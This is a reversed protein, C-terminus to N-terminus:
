AFEPCVRKIVDSIDSILKSCYEVFADDVYVLTSVESVDGEFFFDEDLLKIRFPLSEVRKVLADYSPGYGHKLTNIAKCLTDFQEKLVLEKENILINKAEQFGNDCKLGLQLNAEFISFMGVSFIVKQLQVMQLTKVLSTSGSIQLKQITRDNSKKLTGLTFATCRYVLETFSHM